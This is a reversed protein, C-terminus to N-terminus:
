DGHGVGASGTAEAIHDRLAGAAGGEFLEVRVVGCACEAAYQPRGTRYGPSNIVPLVSVVGHPVDAM